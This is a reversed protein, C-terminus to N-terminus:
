GDLSETIFPKWSFQVESSYSSSLLPLLFLPCREWTSSCGDGLLPQQLWSPHNWLPGSGEGPVQRHGPLTGAAHLAAVVEVGAWGAM